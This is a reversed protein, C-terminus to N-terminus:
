EVNQVQERLRELEAKLEVVLHALATDGAKSGATNAERGMEQLLFDLRRGVPEGSGSLCAAVQEAHSRLRVVEESVDFRDAALALEHYLRGEDLLGTERGLQELRARLRERAAKQGEDARAALEGVLGAARALRARLDRELAVGEAARMAEVGDAAADLAALLASRLAEPPLEGEVLTAVGPLALLRAVDLGEALGHRRALERGVELYRLAAEADIAVRAPGREPGQQAVTVELKGRAFRGRLGARLEPELFALARPLRLQVDAHRHNVSRIEVAFSQGGVEFAARGFGTMSRIM